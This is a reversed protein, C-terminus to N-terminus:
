SVMMRYRIDGDELFIVFKVERGEVLYRESEARLRKLDAGELFLRLTEAKETLVEDPVDSVLLEKVTQEHEQRAVTEICHSLDPILEVTLTM